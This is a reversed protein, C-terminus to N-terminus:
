KGKKKGEEKPKEVPAEVPAESEAEEPVAELEEEGFVRDAKASDSVVLRGANSALLSKAFTDEFEVSESPEIKGGEKNLYINYNAVNKVIM